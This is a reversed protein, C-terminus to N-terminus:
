LEGCQQYLDHEYKLNASIIQISGTEWGLLCNVM